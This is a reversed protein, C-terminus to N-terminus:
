ERMPMVMVGNDTTLCLTAETTAQLMTSRIGIDSIPIAKRLPVRAGTTSLKLDKARVFYTSGPFRQASILTLEDRRIPGPLRGQTSSNLDFDNRITAELMAFRLDGHIPGGFLLATVREWYFRCSATSSRRGPEAPMSTSSWNGM